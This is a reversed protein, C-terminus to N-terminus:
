AVRALDLLYGVADREYVPRLLVSFIVIFLRLFIHSAHPLEEDGFVAVSRCAFYAEAVVVTQCLNQRVLPVGLFLFPRNERVSRKM